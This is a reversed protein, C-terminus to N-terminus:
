IKKAREKRLLNEVHEKMALMQKEKEDWESKSKPKNGFDDQTAMLKGDKGAIFVEGNRGLLRFKRTLLTKDLNFWDNSKISKEPYLWDKNASAIYRHARSKIIYNLAAVGRSNLKRDRIIDDYRAITRDFFRANKRQKNAKNRGPSRAYELNTIIACTNLDLPFITRTGVLHIGPDLPFECAKNAPYFVPNYLTVPNDSIIFKIESNEASVIEMVGEVWMTCHMQRVRQMHILLDNYNKAKTVYTLWNLGKPTRLRQADMYEFFNTFHSHIKRMWDGSTIADLALAGDTDIKGFLRKEIDDNEVGYFRTTYLDSEYFFRTPGKHLIEKKKIVKGNPTKITEPQLDLRYYATQGELMFRRQYWEPVYHHRHSQQM